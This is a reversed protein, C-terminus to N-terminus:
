YEVGAVIVFDRVRERVSHEMHFWLVSSGLETRCTCGSYNPADAIKERPKIKWKCHQLIHTHIKTIRIVRFKLDVAETKSYSRCKSSLCARILIYHVTPHQSLPTRFTAYM